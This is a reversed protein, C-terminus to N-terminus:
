RTAQEEELHGPRVWRLVAEGSTKRVEIQVRKATAKVVVGPIRHVYGYGGRYERLWAVRQGPTFTPPRDTM